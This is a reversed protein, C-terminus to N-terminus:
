PIGLIGRHLLWPEGLRLALLWFNVGHSGLLLLRLSLCIAIANSKGLSISLSLM